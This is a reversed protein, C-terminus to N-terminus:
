HAARHKNDQFGHCTNQCPTTCHKYLTEFAPRHNGPPPTESCCARFSSSCAAATPATRPYAHQTSHRWIIYLKICQADHTQSNALFCVHCQRSGKQGWDKAVHLLKNKPYRCIPHVWDTLFVCLCACVSEYKVQLDFTRQDESKPGM